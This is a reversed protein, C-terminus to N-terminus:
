KKHLSLRTMPIITVALFRSSPFTFKVIVRSYKEKYAAYMAIGFYKDLGGQQTIYLRTHNKNGGFPTALSNKYL